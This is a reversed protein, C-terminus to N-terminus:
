PLDLVRVNGLVVPDGPTGSDPDGATAGKMRYFNAVQNGVIKPFFGAFGDQKIM